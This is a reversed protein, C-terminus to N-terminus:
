EAWNEIKLGAVRRFERTNNTVLILDAAIAHAAIWLDNNGGIIEGKRELNARLKGYIAGAAKPLPLVAIQGAIEDVLAVNRDRQASKEAGYSLEGFVIVSVGVEGSEFKAFTRLVSNPTKRQIYIFTDTDLLYRM